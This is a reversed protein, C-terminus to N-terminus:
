GAKGEVVGCIRALKDFNEPATAREPIILGCNKDIMVFLRSAFVRSPGIRDWRYVSRVQPIEVALGESDCTIMISRNRSNSRLAPAIVFIFLPFGLGALISDVDRFVLGSIVVLVSVALALRSLAKAWGRGMILGIYIAAIVQDSRRLDFPGVPDFEEAAM